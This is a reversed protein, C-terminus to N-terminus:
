AEVKVVEWRELMNPASVASCNIDGSAPFVAKGSESNRLVVFKAGNPM